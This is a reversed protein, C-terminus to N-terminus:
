NEDDQGDEVVLLEDLLIDYEDVPWQAHEFAMERFALTLKTGRYDALYRDYYGGGFGIRALQSQSYGLGPVLILDIQAKSVPQGTVPELIGFKTRELHSTADYPYFAMQRHPLTKPIVVQKGTAWAQEIVPRTDVEIASSITIAIVQADCWTGSAFLQDQLLRQQLERDATAMQSLRQIQQIRFTAKDM